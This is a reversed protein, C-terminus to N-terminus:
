CNSLSLGLEIGGTHLHVAAVLKSSLCSAAALNLFFLKQGNQARSFIFQANVHNAHSQSNRHKKV